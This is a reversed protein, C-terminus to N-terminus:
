AHQRIKDELEEITAQYLDIVKQGEEQIVSLDNLKCRSNADSAVKALDYDGITAAVSKLSHTELSFVEMDNKKVGDQLHKMRKRGDKCFMAAIEWYVEETGCNIFGKTIDVM